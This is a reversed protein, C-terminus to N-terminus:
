NFIITKDVDKFCRENLKFHDNKWLENLRNKFHDNKMERVIWTTQKDLSWFFHRFNVFFIDMQAYLESTNRCKSLGPQVLNTKIIWTFEFCEETRTSCIVATHVALKSYPQFVAGRVRWYFYIWDLTLGRWGQQM